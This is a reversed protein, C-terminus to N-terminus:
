DCNSRMKYPRLEQGAPLYLPHGPYGQKTIKLCCPKPIMALVQGARDDIGRECGWACVVLKAQSIMERLAADHDPGVPDDATWIHKPYRSRVGYLNGMLYTGYGWRKAFGICRRITPDDETEDATSPNLGIFLVTPKTADWTRWLKYRWTRCPSFLAGSERGTHFLTKM